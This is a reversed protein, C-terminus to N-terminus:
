EQEQLIETQVYKELEARNTFCRFGSQSAVALAENSENLLVAIPQSLEAQLGDPWAIDLVAKQQGTESDSVDYSVMGRALEISTVWANIAEIEAEEDVEVEPIEADPTDPIAGQTVVGVWRADGHLLDVMLNNAANALLERRAALFEHYNEIKWLNRDQPIWQSELAGPHNREVELFYDEPLRDRIELNSDKTLFCFNALANVERRRTIGVRRLQARPFIHHVELTNMRGLLGSKLPIGDSGWDLADGTRTLMYLVPYFRSGLEFGGFHGPEIRLGGHSLRLQEILNDLPEDEASLADIDQNIVTEISGSFRGWMAAHVYWFLLKDREADPLGSGRGSLYRAMVPFAYKGFLVRDHDLGLRGGIANLCRNIQNVADKLAGQIELSSKGHLFRFRAEGTLVTNVSRLLWDLDFNYGKNRWTALRENMTERAEPWNVCIKALALDGNSLKTGGSNIRNFIDVVVDISQASETIEEDYIQIDRIGLLQALNNSYQQSEDPLHTFAQYGQEMAATVNVWLPDGDMKRPQHFEFSETALNFHLGTFAAANGEFFEPPRGRLVGYLSTMRQQGDLLLKVVGKPLAHGGRHEAVESPTAWVLLNGVPYRRYLSNFFGRVQERTWVYGRQFVPLAMHRSDIHDLLTSIKQM